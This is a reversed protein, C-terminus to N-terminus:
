EQGNTLKDLLGAITDFLKYFRKDREINDARQLQAQREIADQFQKGIEQLGASQAKVLNSQAEILKEIKKDLRGVVYIIFALVAGAWPASNILEGLGQEQNILNIIEAIEEPTM